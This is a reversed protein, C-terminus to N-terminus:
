LQRGMREYYDRNYNTEEWGVAYTTFWPLHESTETINLLTVFRVRSPRQSILAVTKRREILLDITNLQSRLSSEAADLLRITFTGSQERGEGIIHVPKAEGWPRYSGTPASHEASPADQSLVIFPIAIGFPDEIDKLWFDAFATTVEARDWRSPLEDQGVLQLQRVWYEQTQNPLPYHDVWEGQTPDPIRDIITKESGKAVEIASFETLTLASQDYVLRVQAVDNDARAVIINLEVPGEPRVDVVLPPTRSTIGVDDVVEVTIEYRREGKLIGPPVPIKLRNGGEHATPAYVEFWEGAFRERIIIKDGTKSSPGRTPHAYSITVNLNGDRAIHLGSSEADGPTGNWTYTAAGPSEDYPETDGDFYGSWKVVDIMDALGVLPLEKFFFADVRSEAESDVSPFYLFKVQTTGSPMQPSNASGVPWVIGGFSTWHVPLDTANLATLNGEAFLPYVTGLVAGAGNLCQVQFHSVTTGSEKKAHTYALFPKTPDVSKNQSVLNLDSTDSTVARRARFGFAADGDDALEWYDLDEVVGGPTWFASIDGHEYSPEDIRNQVYGTTPWMWATIPAARYTWTQWDSWEGYLVGDSARARWRYTRDAVVNAAVDVSFTDDSIIPTGTVAVAVNGTINFLEVEVATIDDADLDTVTGKLVTEGSQVSGSPTLDRPKYPPSNTKIEEEAWPGWVDGTNTENRSRFRVRYVYNTGWALDAHFEPQTWAAGANVVKALTGSDYITQNGAANMVQIQIANSALNLEHRYVGAYNFGSIQNFKGKPSTLEPAAPGRACQFTRTDSWNNSWVGWSDQHRFRCKLNIGTPLATLSRSFQRNQKETASPEFEADFLSQNNDERWIQAHVRQSYDFLGDGNNHPTNGVFTPEASNFVQGATPFVWTGTSPNANQQYFFDTCLTEDEYGFGTWSEVPLTGRYVGKPDAGSTNVRYYRSKNISTWFGMWYRKGAEIRIAQAPTPFYRTWGGYTMGANPLIMSPSQILLQGGEIDDAWMCLKAEITSGRGWVRAAMELLWGSRYEAPVDYRSAMQNSGGSTSYLTVSTTQTDNYGGDGINTGAGEARTGAGGGGGEIDRRDRRRERVERRIDRRERRM